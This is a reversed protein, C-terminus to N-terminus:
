INLEIVARVRGGCPLLFFVEISIHSNGLITKAFDLINILASGQTISLDSLDVVIYESARKLVM